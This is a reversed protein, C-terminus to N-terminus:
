SMTEVFADTFGQIYGSLMFPLCGFVSFSIWGLTVIAFGERARVEQEIRTLKFAAFGVLATIVATVLFYLYHGDHYYISFPIPLLMTIALFILLFGLIHIVTKIRM